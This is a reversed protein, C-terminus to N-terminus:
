LGAGTVIQGDCVQGLLLKDMVFGAFVSRPDFTSRRLLLVAVLRQVM